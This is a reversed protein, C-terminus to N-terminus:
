FDFIVWKASQRTLYVGGRRGIEIVEFLCNRCREDPTDWMLCVCNVGNKEDWCGVLYNLEVACYGSVLVGTGRRERWVV